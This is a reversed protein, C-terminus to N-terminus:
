LGPDTDAEPSFPGSVSLRAPANWPWNIFANVCLLFAGILQVVLLPWHRQQWALSAGYGLVGLVPALLLRQWQLARRRRGDSEYTGRIVADALRIHEATIRSM